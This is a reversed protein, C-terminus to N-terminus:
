YILLYSHAQLLTINHKLFVELKSTLGSSSDASSLTPTAATSVMLTSSSVSWSSSMALPTARSSCIDPCSGGALLDTVAEVEEVELEVAKADEFIFSFMWKCSVVWFNRAVAADLLRSWTVFSINFRMLSALLCALSSSSSSSKDNAEIALLIHFFRFSFCRSFTKLPVQNLQWMIYLALLRVKNRAIQRKRRISQVKRVTPAM